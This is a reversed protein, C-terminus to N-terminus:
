ILDLVEVLLCFHDSVLAQLRLLNMKRGKKEAFVLMYYYKVICYGYFM